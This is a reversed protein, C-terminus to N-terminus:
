KIKTEYPSKVESEKVYEWGKIDKWEEDWYNPLIIDSM